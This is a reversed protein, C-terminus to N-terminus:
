HFFEDLMEVSVSTEGTEDPVGLLVAPGVVITGGSYLATARMNPPLGKTIGDSDVYMFNSEDVTAVCHEDAGRLMLRVTDFVEGKKVRYLEMPGTSPIHIVTIRTMM